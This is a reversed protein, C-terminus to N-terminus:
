FLFKKQLPKVTPYPVSEGSIIKQPNAQLYTEFGSTDIKKDHENIYNIMGKIDTNRFKVRHADSALFSIAGKDLMEKALRKEKKGLEGTLSGLNCQFLVGCDAFRNINTYDKLIFDYREPHAIVPVLGQSQIVTVVERVYSFDSDIFSFEFLLYKSGALTLDTLDPSYLIDKSAYVECGKHIKVPINESKLKDNLYKMRVAVRDHFEKKAYLDTMHPTAIIDTVGSKAAMDCLEVSMQKSTSGDDIEPLVHCHIDIM